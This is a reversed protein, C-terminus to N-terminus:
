RGGRVAARAAACIREVEGIRREVDEVSRAPERFDFAVGHLEGALRELTDATSHPLAAEMPPRWSRVSFVGRM